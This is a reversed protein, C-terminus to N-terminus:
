RIILKEIKSFTDNTVRVFYAGAPLSSVNILNEGEANVDANYVVRGSMDIVNCNVMGTVGSLNLKVSSTAPNPALTMRVDAAVPDIGVTWPRWEVNAKIVYPQGPEVESLYLVYYKRRLLIEEGDESEVDYDYGFMTGTEEIEDYEEQQVGNLYVATIVAHDGDPVIYFYQSSGVAVDISANCYSNSGHEVHFGLTDADVNESCDIVVQTQPIDLPTGVIPRIMPYHDSYWGMIQNSGSNAPDVVMVDLYFPTIAQNYYPATEPNDAYSQMTSDNLRYRYATSALAFNANNSLYYGFRYSTNAKLAPQDPFQINIANYDNGPLIYGTTLNNTENGSLTFTQNDIGCPVSQFRLNGNEDYVEEAIYPRISAGQMRAASIRASPILEIGRFRWDNPVTAGTTFRVHVGYGSQKYHDDATDQTIFTQGQANPDTYQLCYLSYSPILGNDRGWRYGEIKNNSPEVMYDCVTYLITDFHTNLSNTPVVDNSATATITFYNAGATATPLARGLYGGQLPGQNGYNACDGYIHWTSWNFTTDAIFGREDILMRYGQSINGSPIVRGTGQAVQTLSSPTTGAFVNLKANQLAATGMNYANVGYTMPIEMGKPYMGYFGDWYHHEAIRWRDPRTISVIAVNDVAWAYGYANGIDQRAYGRIRMSINTEGILAAPMTYSPHYGATGNVECDVGTVNIERAYWNNGIKYDIFCRDYYKAYAQTLRVEISLTNANKQVTPLTFYTNFNGPRGSQECYTLFMFGDNEIGPNNDVSLRNMIFRIGVSRNTGSFETEYNAIFASTDAIHMWLDKELPVGHFQNGVLTDDIMDTALIKGSAGYIIETMDLSDFTITRITDAGEEKTFISAKYDVPAMNMDSVKEIRQMSKARAERSLTETKIQAFTLTSCMALGVFMIAKKM